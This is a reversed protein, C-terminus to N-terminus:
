KGVFFIIKGTKDFALQKVWLLRRAKQTIKETTAPFAFFSDTAIYLFNKCQLQSKIFFL